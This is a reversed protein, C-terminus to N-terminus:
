EKCYLVVTVQNGALQQIRPRNHHLIHLPHHHPHLLLLPLQQKIDHDHNLRIKKNLNKKM